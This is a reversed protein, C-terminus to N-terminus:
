ADSLGEAVPSTPATFRVATKARVAIKRAAERAYDPLDADGALLEAWGVIVALAERVADPATAAAETSVPPPLPSLDLVIKERCL